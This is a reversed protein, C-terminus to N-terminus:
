IDSFIKVFLTGYILKQFKDQVQIKQIIEKLFGGLEAYNQLCIKKIKKPELPHNKQKAQKSKSELHM